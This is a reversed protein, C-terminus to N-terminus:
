NDGQTRPRECKNENLLGTPASNASMFFFFFGENEGFDGEERM